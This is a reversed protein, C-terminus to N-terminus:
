ARTSSKECYSKLADLEEQLLGVMMKTMLPMLTMGMVRAIITHATTFFERELRCTDSGTAIVRIVTRYTFGGEESAVVYELPPRFETIELTATADRGFLTRTERWRMGLGHRADSVIEISKIAPLRGVCHEVDAVVEFVRQARCAIDSHVILTKIRADHSKTANM